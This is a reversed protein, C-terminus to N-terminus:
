STAKEDTELLNLWYLAEQKGGELMNLNAMLQQIQKNTNTIASEIELLRKNVSEKTMM